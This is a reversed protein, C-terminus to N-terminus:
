QCLVIYEASQSRKAKQWLLAPPDGLADGPGKGVIQPVDDGGFHHFYLRQGRNLKSTEIAM